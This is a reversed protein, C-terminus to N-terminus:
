PMPASRQCAAQLIRDLLSEIVAEAQALAAPRDFASALEHL